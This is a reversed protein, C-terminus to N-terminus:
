KPLAVRLSARHVRPYLLLKWFCPSLHWRFSWMLIPCALTNAFIVTNASANTSVIRAGTEELAAANQVTLEKGVRSPKSESINVRVIMNFISVWRKASAPQHLLVSGMCVGRHAGQPM